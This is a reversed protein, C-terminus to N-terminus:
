GPHTQTGTQLRWLRAYSGEMAVLTPHDGREVIRGESMVLIEDAHVITSLRHAIVLCSRQKTWSRLSRQIAQETENDVASTAEDLVLLAPKRVLARALAIRQRQGGSLKQGREGVVTAYGAPLDRVFDDVEAAKSAEMVRAHLAEDARVFADKEFAVGQAVVAGDADSSADHGAEGRQVDGRRTPVGYAINDFITGHFLFVDQSVLGMAGRLSALSLTEIPHGDMSIVGETHPYFRFLLKVLTSKGSGTAGVVAVTKGAPVDFSVHDLVRQSASPYQFSVNDFRLVGRPTDLEVPSAAERISQPADLLRFIRETSAMARHYLDVTQGLRTLPWLLRQTLFVLVGYTGVPLVGDLALMGGYALTAAFGLVVAMRILPSFAASLAIAARNSRRYAESLSGIRASEVDMTHFGQITQMGGLNAVLQASLLGARERVATYRPAVRQQFRFSGWIVLPIPLFSLLAVGPSIWFFAIGIVVVTTGVQLVDNAGGDLFRELQNVDESLVSLLRGTDDQEFHDMGLRQVQNYADMRLAHQLTQALGRWRTAHAYEFLSELAWIVVTVATLWALQARPDHVGFRGFVSAGDGVVVDIAAGILVPPALDFIKNIISALSAQIIWRHHPAAYRWLRGLPRRAPGANAMSSTNM